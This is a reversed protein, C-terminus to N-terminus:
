EFYVQWQFYNMVNFKILLSLAIQNILEQAKVFEILSFVIQKKSDLHQDM